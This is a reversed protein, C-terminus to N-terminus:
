FVPEIFKGLSCKIEIFYGGQGFIAGFSRGMEVLIDCVVLVSYTWAIGRVKQYASVQNATFRLIEEM